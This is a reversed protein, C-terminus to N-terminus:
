HILFPASYKRLDIGDWAVGIRAQRAAPNNVRLTYLGPALPANPTIRVVNPKSPHAEYRFPVGYPSIPAVDWQTGSIPMAQNNASIESRM